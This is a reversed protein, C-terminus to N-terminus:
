PALDRFAQALAMARGVSTEAARKRAELLAVDAKANLLIKHERKEALSMKSYDLEWDAEVLRNMAWEEEQEVDKPYFSKALEIVALRLADDVTM